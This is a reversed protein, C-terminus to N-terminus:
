CVCASFLHMDAPIDCFLGVLCFIVAESNSLFYQPTELLYVLNGLSEECIKDSKKSERGQGLLTKIPKM